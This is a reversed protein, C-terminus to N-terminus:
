AEADDPIRGEHLQVVARAAAQLQRARRYYGLGEWAKLVDAEDAEALARADPFQRLFREFYPIVAAVTTQVLMFESVLIRYADRDARWPLKRGAEGYWDLLGRRVGELWAPDEDPGAGTPSTNGAERKRRGM